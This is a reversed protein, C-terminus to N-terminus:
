LFVVELDLVVAGPVVGLRLVEDRLDGAELVDARQELAHREADVHLVRHSCRLCRTPPRSASRRTGAVRVPAPDAPGTSSRSRYTSWASQPEARYSARRSSPSSTIRWQFARRSHLRTPCWQVNM